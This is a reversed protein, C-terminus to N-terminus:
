HDVAVPPQRTGAMAFKDHIAHDCERRRRPVRAVVIWLGAALRAGAALFDLRLMMTRTRCAEVAVPRGSRVELCRDGFIRWEIRRRHDHRRSLPPIWVPTQPGRRM